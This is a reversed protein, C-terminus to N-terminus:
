TEFQREVRTAHGGGTILVGLEMNLSFAYKTLNASSLFLLRDDAVACKIHLIGPRGTADKFRNEIPWLYVACRSAVTPGVAALTDFASRVVILDPSEVILRISVGRDVARILAEGIRPIEFVAYSVVLLRKIASDIVQLVVQETRRLPVAGVDPGTW